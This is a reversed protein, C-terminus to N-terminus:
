HFESLKNNQKQILLNYPIIGYLSVLHQCVWLQCILGKNLLLSVKEGLLLQQCDRYHKNAM